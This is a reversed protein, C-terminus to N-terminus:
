NGLPYSFFSRMIFGFASCRISSFTLFLRSSRKSLFAKRFQSSVAGVSFVIVVHTQPCPPNPSLRAPPFSAEPQSSFSLSILLPWQTKDWKPPGPSHHMWIDPGTAPSGDRLNGWYQLLRDELTGNLEFAFLHTHLCPPNPYIGGMPIKQAPLISSSLAPVGPYQGM